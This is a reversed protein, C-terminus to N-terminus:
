ERGMGKRGNIVYNRMKDGLEDRFQDPVFVIRRAPMKTTGYQHFKAYEVDTGFTADLKNIKNVGGDLHRISRFLRGTIRLKPNGPFNERKWSAYGKDLPDWGGVLGGGSRFNASFSRELSRKAWRWVPTFDRSRDNMNEFKKKAEKIDIDVSVIVTREAAM